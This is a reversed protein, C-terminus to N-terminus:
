ADASVGRSTPYRRMPLVAPDDPESRRGYRRCVALIVLVLAVLNPDQAHAAVLRALTVHVAVLMNDVMRVLAAALDAILQAIFRLLTQDPSATKLKVRQAPSIPSAPTQPFARSLGETLWSPLYFKPVGSPLSRPDIPLTTSTGPFGSPLEPPRTVQLLLACADSLATMGTENNGVQILAHHALEHIQMFTKRQASLERIDWVLDAVTRGVQVHRLLSGQGPVDGIIVDMTGATM